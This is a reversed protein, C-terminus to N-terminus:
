GVCAIGYKQFVQHAGPIALADELPTSGTIM